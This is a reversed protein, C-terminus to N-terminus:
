SEVTGSAMVKSPEAPPTRGPELSVAFATFAEARRGSGVPHAAASDGSVDFAGLAVASGGRLGWLVYVQHAAANAPLDVPVVTWGDRAALLLAMSRGDSTELAVRRTDPAALRDVVQSMETVERAIRDREGDLQAVRVGLVTSVAVLVITAAATLVRRVPQDSRRARNRLSTVEAQGTGTNDAAALIRRELEDPPAADPVAVALAAGVEETERVIGRCEACDALHAVFLSEEAPELCHLAWGVALERHPCGVTPRRETM